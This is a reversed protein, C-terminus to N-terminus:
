QANPCCQGRWCFAVDTKNRTLIGRVMYSKNPNSNTCLPIVSHAVDCAGNQWTCDLNLVRGCEIAVGLFAPKLGDLCIRIACGEPGKHFQRKTELPATPVM